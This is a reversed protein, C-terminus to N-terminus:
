KHAVTDDRVQRNCTFAEERVVFDGVDGDIDALCLPLAKFEGEVDDIDSVLVELPGSVERERGIFVTPFVM